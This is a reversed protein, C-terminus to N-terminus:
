LSPPSSTPPSLSLLFSVSLVLAFYILLPFLTLYLSAEQSDLGEEHLAWSCLMMTMLRELIPLLCTPPLLSSPSCLPVSPFLDLDLPPASLSFPCHINFCLRHIAWINASRTRMWWEAPHRECPLPLSVFLFQRIFFLSLPYLYTHSVLFPQSPFPPFDSYSHALNFAPTDTHFVKM